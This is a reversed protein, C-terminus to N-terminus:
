TPWSRDLRASRALATFAAILVPRPSHIGATTTKINPRLPRTAIPGSVSSTFHLSPRSLAASDPTGIELRLAIAAFSQYSSDRAFAEM